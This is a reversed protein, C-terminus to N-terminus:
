SRAWVCLQAVRCSVLIGLAMALASIWPQPVTSSRAQALQSQLQRHWGNRCLLRAVSFKPGSLWAPMKVSATSNHPSYPVSMNEDRRPSCGVASELNHSLASPVKSVQSVLACRSTYTQIVNPHSLLPCLLSEKLGASSPSLSDSAVFKIAAPTGKWLGANIYCSCQPSSRHALAQDFLCSHSPFTSWM